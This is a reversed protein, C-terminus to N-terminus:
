EACRLGMIRIFTFWDAVVAELSNTASKAGQDLFAAFIERTIPNLRRAIEEEKDRTLIIKSCMNTQDLLNARIPLDWLRFLNNISEVYRCVTASCSNQVLMLHEIFCAVIHEYGLEPGCPDPICHSKTWNVYSAQRFRTTEIESDSKFRPM